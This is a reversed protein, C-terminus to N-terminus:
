RIALVRRVEAELGPACLVANNRDIRDSGDLTFYRAGSEAAIVRAPAYDWEMGSGSLWIDVKGRAVLTVDYCGGYARVTWCSEVLSRVRAPDFQSWVLKFGSVALVAKDIRAIPSAEVRGGNLFCGLGDVAHVMEDLAPLYILGLVIRSEAELAIQVAWFPTRRVFDRTGDIPDIIWRRGSRSDRRAGEEGLIGDDPFSEVLRRAILAECERDAVTVPSLDEKEEVATEQAFYGLAVEGARRAIGLATETEKEFPM